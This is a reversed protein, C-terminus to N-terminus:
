AGIKEVYRPKVLNNVTAPQWKGGRKTKRGEAELISAIERLTKGLTRLERAREVTGMEEHDVHLCKDEDTYYGLPSAGLRERRSKKAQLAARTREAAAEREFQSFVLLMNLMARGSATSSDFKEMVTALEGGANEIQQMLIPFDTLTRTLRDVKLALLMKGPGLAALAKRLEPRDLTRASIGEDVYIGSVQLGNAEAWAKCRSVQDELGLGTRCQEETSVRGYVLVETVEQKAIRRAM